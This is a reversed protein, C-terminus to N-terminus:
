CNCNCDMRDLLKKAIKFSDNAAKINQILVNNYTTKINKLIEESKETIGEKSILRNYCCILNPMLVTNKTFLDGCSFVTIKYPGDKICGLGLEEVTIRTSHKTYVSVEKILTDSYYIKINYTEPISHVEDKMWYSLDTYVINKNDPTEILFNYNEKEICSCTNM